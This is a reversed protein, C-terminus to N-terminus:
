GLVTSFPEYGPAVVPWPHASEWREAADLLVDDAYRPGTIQLGFPVGTSSRGAPVSIAPHGTVNQVATSYVEPPLMGPESASTLRGDAYWGESAVTPTLLLNSRGLLEDLRMVYGFRRRRAALYDDIPVALGVEMFARTAPHMSRVHETVWGRGLSAVHEATAVTFWDLDPNGDTFFADPEIWTVPLGMVEAFADVAAVFSRRVPAPLPGLDSTRDAALLGAPRPAPVISWGDPRATPDGATPGMEVQLLLRLDAVTTALPGSTSYDIWDHPPYRGILGNTPKLGVLGCFAAPIRISGGGDTATAIPVLGAALAAGSGGSSGGPSRELSWPNRTPGFVLNDTFGETAFEPLNTKGIIVAGAARLRAPILGDTAAPASKIFLSSGYTTRMGAVDELDKVLVPVGALPGSPAGAAIRRDIMEAERLAEAARLAVVSNLAPDLRAIRDLAEQVM